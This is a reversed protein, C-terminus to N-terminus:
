GDEWSGFLIGKDEGLPFSQGTAGFYRGTQGAFQQRGLQFLHTQANFTLDQRIHDAQLFLDGGGFFLDCSKLPPNVIIDVAKM